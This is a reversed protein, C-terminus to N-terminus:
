AKADGKGVFFGLTLGLLGNLIQLSSSNTLSPWLSAIIVALAFLLAMIAMVITKLGEFTTTDPVLKDRIRKTPMQSEVLDAIEEGSSVTTVLGNKEYYWEWHVKNDGNIYYEVTVMQGGAIPRAKRPKLTTANRIGKIYDEARQEISLNNASKESASKEQTDSM